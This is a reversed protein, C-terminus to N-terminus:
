QLSCCSSVLNSKLLYYEPAAQKQKEFIVKSYNLLQSHSATCTQKCPFKQCFGKSKIKSLFTKFGEGGNAHSNWM